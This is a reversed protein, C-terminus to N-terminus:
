APRRASGSDSDDSDDEVDPDAAGMRTYRRQLLAGWPFWAAVVLFAVIGVILEIMGLSM